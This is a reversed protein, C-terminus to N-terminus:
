VERNTPLTLHTYSVAKLIMYILDLVIEQYPYTYSIALYLVYAKLRKRFKHDGRLERPFGFWVALLLSSVAIWGCPLMLFPMPFNYGMNVTWFIYIGLYTINYGSYFAVFYILPFLMTNFYTENFVLYVGRTVPLTICFITLFLTGLFIEEWWFEPYIM